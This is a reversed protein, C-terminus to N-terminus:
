ISRKYISTIRIDFALNQEGYATQTADQWSMGHNFLFPVLLELRAELDDEARDLDQHPSVLVLTFEAGLNRIPAAAVKAYTDTKVILVPGDLQGIQRVSGVVKIDDLGDTAALTETLYQVLDTRLSM